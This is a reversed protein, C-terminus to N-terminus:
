APRARAIKSLSEAVAEAQRAQVGVHRVQVVPAVPERLGEAEVLARQGRQALHARGVVHRDGEAVDRDAVDAQVVEGPGEGDVALRAGEALRVAQGPQHHLGVVVDGVQVVKAAFVRHGELEVLGRPRARLREAVGVVARQAVEVLRLQVELQVEEVLAHGQGLLGQGPELAQLHRVLRGLREGVEGHAHASLAFGQPGELTKSLARAINTPSPLSNQGARM